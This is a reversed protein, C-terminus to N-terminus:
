EGEESCKKLLEVINAIEFKNEEDSNKTSDFRSNSNFIYGLKGM